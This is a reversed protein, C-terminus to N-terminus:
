TELAKPEAIGLDASYIRAAIQLVAYILLAKTIM